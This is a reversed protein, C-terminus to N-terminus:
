WQNTQILYNRIENYAFRQIKPDTTTDLVEYMRQIYESKTTPISISEKTSYGLDTNGNTRVKSKGFNGTVQGQTRLKPKIKSLNSSTM